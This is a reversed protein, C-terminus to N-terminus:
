YACHHTEWSRELSDYRWSYKDSFFVGNKTSCRGSLSRPWRNCLTNFWKQDRQDRLEPNAKPYELDAAPELVGRPVNISDEIAISNHEAPERVDLVKYGEAILKEAADVDVENIRSKADAVFDKLSM